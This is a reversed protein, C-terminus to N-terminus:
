QGAAWPLKLLQEEIAPIGFGFFAAMVLCGLGARMLERGLRWGFGRRVSFSRLLTGGLTLPVGFFSLWWVLPDTM